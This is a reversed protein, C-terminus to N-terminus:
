SICFIDHNATIYAKALDVFMSVVKYNCDLKKMIYEHLNAIAMSTLSKKCFGFQECNSINHM